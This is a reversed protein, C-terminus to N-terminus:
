LWIPRPRLARAWAPRWRSTQVRVAQRWFLELLEEASRGGIPDEGFLQRLEALIAPEWDILTGYCDFTLAEFTDFDLM